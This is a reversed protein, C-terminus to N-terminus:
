LAPCLRSQAEEDVGANPRKRQSTTGGIPRAVNPCECPRDLGALCDQGSAEDKLSNELPKRTRAGTVLDEIWEGGNRHERRVALIVNFRGLQSVTAASAAHLDARDVGEQGLEAYTM